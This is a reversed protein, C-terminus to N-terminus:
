GADDSRKKKERLRALALNAQRDDPVPPHRPQLQVVVAAAQRARPRVGEQPLAGRCRDVQSRALVVAFEEIAAFNAGTTRDGIWPKKKPPAANDSPRHQPLQDPVGPFDSHSARLNVAPTTSASDYLAIPTSGPPGRRTAPSVLGPPPHATPPSPLGQPHHARHRRRPPQPLDQRGPQDLRDAQSLSLSVPQHGRAEGAACRDPRRPRAAQGCTRGRDQAAFSNQQASPRGLDAVEQALRRILCQKQLQAYAAPLRLSATAAWLHRPRFACATALRWALCRRPSAVCSSM